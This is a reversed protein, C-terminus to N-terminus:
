ASGFLGDYVNADYILDFLIAYISISWLMYAEINTLAAFFFTWMIPLAKQPFKRDKHCHILCT